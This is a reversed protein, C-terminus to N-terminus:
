DNLYPAPRVTRAYYNATLEERGTADQGMLAQSQRWILGVRLSGFTLAQRNHLQAFVADAIDGAELPDPGVRIRFQVGTIADPQDTDEVPYTNLWIVRDPSDPMAGFGLATEDAAYVEGPNPRYVGLGADALLGALGELLARTHAVTM